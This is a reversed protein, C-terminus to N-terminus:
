GFDHRMHIGSGLEEFLCIIEEIKYFCQKDSLTEDELIKKIAKLAQYSAINIIKEANINLNPFVIEVKEDKLLTSLIERCLEM